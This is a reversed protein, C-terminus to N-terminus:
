RNFLLFGGANDLLVFVMDFRSLLPSAIGTNVSVDAVEDYKGRPNM